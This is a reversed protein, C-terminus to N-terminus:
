LRDIERVQCHLLWQFDLLHDVFLPSEHIDNINADLDDVIDNFDRNIVYRSGSYNGQFLINGDLVALGDLYTWFADDM